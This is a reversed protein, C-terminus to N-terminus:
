HGHHLLDEIEQKRHAKDDKNQQSEYGYVVRLFTGADSGLERMQERYEDQDKSPFGKFTEAMSTLKGMLVFMNKTLNQTIAGMECNAKDEACFNWLDYFSSEFHCESLDGAVEAIEGFMNLDTKINKLEFMAWPDEIMLGINSMNTITSDDMCKDLKEDQHNIKYFSKYYGDYFSKFGEVDDKIKTKKEDENLKEASVTAITSTAM